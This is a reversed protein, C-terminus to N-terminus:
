RARRRQAAASRARKLTGRVDSNVDTAFDAVARLLSAAAVDPHKGSGRLEPFASTTASWTDGNDHTTVLVKMRAWEQPVGNVDYDYDSMM